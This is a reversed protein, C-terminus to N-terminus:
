QRHAPRSKAGPGQGIAFAVSAQSPVVVRRHPAAAQLPSQPDPYRGRSHKTNTQPKVLHLTLRSKYNLSNLGWHVPERDCLPTSIPMWALRLEQAIATGSVLRLGDGRFTSKRKQVQLPSSSPISM